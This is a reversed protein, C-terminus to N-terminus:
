IHESLSSLYIIIDYIYVRCISPQLDSLVQDLIQQFAAGSTSMGIPLVIWQFLGISTSFTTIKKYNEALPLQFYGKTLDLSSFWTNRALL